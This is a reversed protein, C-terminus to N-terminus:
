KKLQAIMGKAQASYQGDPALKVYTEFSSVAEPLKGEKEADNGQAILRDAAERESGAFPTRAMPLLRNLFRRSSGEM